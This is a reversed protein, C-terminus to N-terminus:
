FRWRVELGTRTVPESSVQLREGSQLTMRFRNRVQRGISAAVSLHQGAALRLSLDLAYSKYVFSSEEAFERDTVHWQDGDPAISLATTLRETVNYTLRSAPFGLDLTWDPHLRWAIGGTPYVKYGGFRYDGCVGYWSSLRESLPSQWVLAVALRATDSRYKRPHGLINSSASAGPALGLRVNRTDGVFWHVPFYSTHLHANTQPEIGEFNFKTYRHSFGFYLHDSKSRLQIHLNQNQQATEGLSREIASTAHEVVNASIYRSTGPDDCVTARSASAFLICVLCVPGPRCLSRVFFM